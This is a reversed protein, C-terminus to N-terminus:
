GSLRPPSPCSLPYTTKLMQPQLLPQHAREKHNGWIGWAPVSNAQNPESHTSNMHREPSPNLPAKESLSCPHTPVPLYSPHHGLLFVSNTELYFPVPTSSSCFITFKWRNKKGTQVYIQFIPISSYWRQYHRSTRLLRSLWPLPTSPM